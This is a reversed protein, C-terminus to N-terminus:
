KAFEESNGVATTHRDGRATVIDTVRRQLSKQFRLEFPIKVAKTLTTM